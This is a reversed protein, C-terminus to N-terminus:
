LPRIVHCFEAPTLKIGTKREAGPLIKQSFARPAPQILLRGTAQIDCHLTITQASQLVPRRWRGTRRSIM